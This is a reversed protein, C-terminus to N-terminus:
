ILSIEASLMGVTQPKFYVPSVVCIANAGNDAAHTAQM